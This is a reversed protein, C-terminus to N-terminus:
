AAAAPAPEANTVRNRGSRKSVYLAQDARALLSAATEGPRLEAVGASVTVAGLEENTSRRKLNRSAIELRMADVMRASMAATDGPLVLAFEEGGYRAAVRPAAGLRQLVSAVYRIVQDGTQHGWTDNFRKFHDIDLVVLTLPGGDDGAVEVARGLGDDFAKRNALSTLADTAADRRVVDLNQQLREVESTSQSLRKELAANQDQVRRTAEALTRVMQEIAAPPPGQAIEERAGALTQGYAASSKQAEAIAQNMGALQRTLQDGADRLQDDLRREPLFKAALEESKAETIAEGAKILRRVEVGLPGDPQSVLHTWLEFNLPTPWVKCRRMEEVAELAAGYGEPSRLLVRAEAVM